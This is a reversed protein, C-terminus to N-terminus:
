VSLDMHLAETDRMNQWIEWTPEPDGVWKVQFAM